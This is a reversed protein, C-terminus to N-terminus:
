RAGFAVSRARLTTAVEYGLLLTPLSSCATFVNSALLLLISLRKSEKRGEKKERRKLKGRLTQRAKKDMEAAPQAKKQRTM